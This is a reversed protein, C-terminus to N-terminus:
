SQCDFPGVEELDASDDDNTVTPPPSMPPRWAEMTESAALCNTTVTGEPALVRRTVRMPNDPSTVDEEATLTVQALDRPRIESGLLDILRRPIGVRTGVVKLRSTVM